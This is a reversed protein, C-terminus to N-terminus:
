RWCNWVNRECLSRMYDLKPDGKEIVERASLDMRFHEQPTSDNKSAGYVIGKMKALDSCLLVDCM